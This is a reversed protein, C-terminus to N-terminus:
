CLTTDTSYLVYPHGQEIHFAINNTQWKQLWEDKPVLRSEQAKVGEKEPVDLSREM